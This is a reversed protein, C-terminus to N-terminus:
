PLGTAQAENNDVDQEAPTPVQLCCPCIHVFHDAGPEDEQVLDHTMCNACAHDQCFDCKLDEADSPFENECSCCKVYRCWQRCWQCGGSAAPTANGAVETPYLEHSSASTSTQAGSNNHVTPASWPKADPRTKATPLMRPPVPGYGGVDDGDDEDIDSGGFPGEVEEFHRRWPPPLEWCRTEPPNTPHWDCRLGFRRAGILCAERSGFHRCRISPAPAPDLTQKEM